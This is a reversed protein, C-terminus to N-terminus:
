RKGFMDLIDDLPNGDGDKDLFGGVIDMLGGGSRQAQGGGLLSGLLDGLGGAGTNTQRKQKGLYSMVIPALLALLPGVKSLSLGTKQSVGQEVRDRKGGFIHGLIGNGDEQLAQPHNQLMGSLNDLLSGDHKAELANNLSEAGTPSQANKTLGALIAPIATNVASSAERENMGLQSSVNQIVNQGISSNLLDSLNM